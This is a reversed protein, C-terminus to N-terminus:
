YCEKNTNYQDYVHVIMNLEAGILFVILMIGYWNDIKYLTKAAMKAVMQYTGM